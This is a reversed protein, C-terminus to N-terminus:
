ESAQEQAKNGELLHPHEYINGLVTWSEDHLGYIDSLNCEGGHLDYGTYEQFFDNKIQTITWGWDNSSIVGVIESEVENGDFLFQHMSVIDGEYVEKGHTDTLGTYQMFIYNHEYYDQPLTAVNQAVLYEITAPEVMYGAAQDLARFKIERAM